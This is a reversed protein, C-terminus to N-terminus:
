DKSGFTTSKYTTQGENRIYKTYLIKDVKDCMNLKTRLDLKLDCIKRIDHNCEEILDANSKGRINPGRYDSTELKLKRGHTLTSNILPIEYCYEDNKFVRKDEAEYVIGNKKCWEAEEKNYIRKGQAILEQERQKTALFDIFKRNRKSSKIIARNICTWGIRGEFAYGYGNLIMQKHVEFYYTRLIESYERFKLKLLKDLKIIEKNANHYNELLKAYKLLDYLISTQEYDKSRNIFAGKAVRVFKGDIYRRAKFEEFSGVDLKFNSKYVDLNNEIIEHYKIEDQIYQQKDELLKKRKAKSRTQMLEYYKRLGIPVEKFAM